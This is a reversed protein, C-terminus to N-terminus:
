FGEPLEENTIIAWDGLTLIKDAGDDGDARVANNSPKPPATSQASPAYPSSSKSITLHQGTRSKSEDRVFTIGVAELNSKVNTLRKSLVIANEPFKKSKSNIAYDEAMGELKKYLDSYLGYWTERDRMFEVVLTAVIDNAIAEENQIQRNATYENLFIQGMGEGLAEGIAYGWRAFDAMRPLNKLKLTPFINMAKVLTDFIGGLISPKDAEFNAMVESLERRSSDKIRMLEILISRDLLDARTAVNHIGNIAVCRQFTFIMDEANTHLKRQQIGGGTVARCLTDSTEENVFSVNDFPLFWHNQLNVALTRQDNQLTLTDLASPDILSKLMTSTTSKAAGKEGHLILIAHPISPVFCSVLWCLFLTDNGQITVYDLMQRINGYKQPTSQQIQHRYRTFLIPPNSEVNWGDTTIKVAQWDTSTLDYWFTGDRDAIRTSLKVPDPNDYLAKASLVGIVQKIADKSIPKGSATYFQGNLWIEFDRGNLPLVEMHERVPITAYLDKIDSHFFTAGTQEVLELLQEAQSKKGEGKGQPTDKENTGANYLSANALLDSIATIREDQPTAEILDTIDGGAPLEPMAALLDVMYVAEAKGVLSKAVIEAHHNGAEDNDSVIYVTGGKLLTSFSSRWKGAGMPSATAVFGYKALNNCDKEGEVLLVPQKEKIATTVAALNYITPTIGKFIDQWIYKGHNQPDPRRQAFGKPSYRITSHIINGDLDKYDYVAAIEKKAKYDPKAPLLDKMELGLAGLINETACGVHCHLLIKGDSEGISLSPTKDDHAPCLAKYQKGNGKVGKLRQLLENLQM